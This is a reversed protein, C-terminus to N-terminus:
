AFRVSVQRRRMAGGALGFGAIMMAWASPEPVGARGADVLFDDLYAPGSSTGFISFGVLNKGAALNATVNFFQWGSSGIANVLFDASTGDGYYFTYSDFPGGDRLVWFSVQNVASTAVPAFTQKISDGGFAAVSFQGTHAQANTVVPTGTAVTWPALSGSEFGPNVLLNAASAPAAALGLTLLVFKSNM